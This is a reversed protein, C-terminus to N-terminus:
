KLPSTSLNVNLPCHWLEIAMCDVPMAVRVDLLGNEINHRGVLPAGNLPVDIHSIWLGSASLRELACMTGPTAAVLASLALCVVRYRGATKGNALSFNPRIPYSDMLPRSSMADSALTHANLPCVAWKITSQRTRSSRRSCNWIASAARVHRPLCQPDMAQCHAAQCQM